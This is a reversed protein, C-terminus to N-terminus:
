FLYIKCFKLRIYKIQTTTNFMKIKALSVYLKAIDDKEIIEGEEVNDDDPHSSEDDSFSGDLCKVIAIM